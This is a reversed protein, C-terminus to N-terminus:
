YALLGEVGSWASALEHIISGKVQDVLPETGGVETLM